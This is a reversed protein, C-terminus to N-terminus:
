LDAFYVGSKLLSIIENREEFTINGMDILDIDAVMTFGHMTSLKKVLELPKGYIRCYSSATPNINTEIYSKRLRVKQPLYYSLQGGGSSCQAKPYLKQDNMITNAINSALGLVGNGLSSTSRNVQNTGGLQLSISNMASAYQLVSLGNSIGLSSMAIEGINGISSLVGNTINQAKLISIDYSNDSSIPVRIGLQCEQKTIIQNDTVNTVICQSSGDMYNIQYQVMLEKDLVQSAKLDIYGCYPLYLSYNCYPEYVLFTKPNSSSIKFKNTTIYDSISHKLAFCNVGSKESNIQIEGLGGYNTNVDIYYPLVIISIIYSYRGKDQLWELFTRLMAVSIGVSYISNSGNSGCYYFQKKSDLNPLFNNSIIDINTPYIDTSWFKGIGTVIVNCKSEASPYTSYDKCFEVYNISSDTINTVETETIKREYKTFLYKDELMLNYEFENRSVICTQKLIDTKFSMLVDVSLSIEWLGNRTSVIDTVFYYRKFESIYCYNYDIISSDEAIQIIPYLISTPTRMTGQLVKITGFYTDKDVRNNEQAYKILRIEM